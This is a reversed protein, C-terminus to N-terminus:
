IDLLFSFRSEKTSVAISDRGLSGVAALRVGSIKVSAIGFPLFDLVVAAGDTELAGQNTDFVVLAEGVGEALGFATVM